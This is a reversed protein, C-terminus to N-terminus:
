IYGIDVGSARTRSERKLILRLVSEEEDQSCLNVFLLMHSYTRYEPSEPPSITEPGVNYSQTSIVKNM